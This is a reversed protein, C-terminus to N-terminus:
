STAAVAAESSSSSAEDLRAPPLVMQPLGASTALMTSIADSRGSAATPTALNFSFEAAASAAAGARPTPEGSTLGFTTAGDSVAVGLTAWETASSPRMTRYDVRHVYTTRGISPSAHVITELQLASAPQGAVSAAYRLVARSATPLVAGGPLQCYTFAAADLAADSTGLVSRLAVVRLVENVSGGVLAHLGDGEAGNAASADVCKAGRLLGGTAARGFLVLAEGADRRWEFDHSVAIPIQKGIEDRPVPDPMVTSLTAVSRTAWEPVDGAWVPVRDADLCGLAAQAPHGSAQADDTNDRSVVDIM